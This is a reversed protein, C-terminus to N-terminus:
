ASQATLIVIIRHTDMVSPQSFLSAHDGRVVVVVVLWSSFLSEWLVAFLVWGMRSGDDAVVVCIRDAM